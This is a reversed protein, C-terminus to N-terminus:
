AAGRQARPEARRSGVVATEQADDVGRLSSCSGSSCAAAAAASDRSDGDRLISVLEHAAEQQLGSSMLTKVAHHNM